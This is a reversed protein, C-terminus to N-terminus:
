IHPIFTTWQVTQYTTIPLSRLTTFSLGLLIIRAPVYILAGFFLCSASFYIVWGSLQQNRINRILLCIVGAMLLPVAVIAVASARWMLKETLSPFIYSWAVCHVAGFVMAVLLAIFDAAFVIEGDEKVYGSFFTPVRELKSLAIDMDENGMVYSMAMFWKYLRSTKRADTEDDAKDHAEDSDDTQPRNWKVRVPCQINLPKDWWAAYMAVTIVTYALTM